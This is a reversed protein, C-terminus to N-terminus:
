RVANLSWDYRYKSIKTARELQEVLEPAAFKKLHAIVAGDDGGFDAEYWGYIKSAVLKGNEIAAGRPDNVYDRAAADLAADLAAGFYPAAALSPCGISACNLAYHALPEKFAPRVIGHEIDGLSLAVGDVTAIVGGWADDIDRISRIGPHDLILRVTAANYLNIWFALAENRTLRAPDVSELAVIYAGLADRDAATVAGYRVRAPAGEVRYRSLFGAFASHDVLEASTEDWRAFRPDVLDASPVGLREVWIPAASAPAIPAASFCVACLGLVLLRM